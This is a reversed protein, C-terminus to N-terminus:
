GEYLVIEGEDEAIEFHVTFEPGLAKALALAAELDGDYLDCADCRQVGYDDDMAELVGPVIVPAWEECPCQERPALDPQTLDVPEGDLELWPNTGDAILVGDAVSEPGTYQANM